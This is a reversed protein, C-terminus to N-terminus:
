KSVHGGSDLALIREDYDISSTGDVKVPRSTKGKPAPATLSGALEVRMRVHYKSGITLREQMPYAEQGRVGAPGLASLCVLALGGMRNVLMSPRRNRDPGERRRAM